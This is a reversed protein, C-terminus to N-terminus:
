WIIVVTGGPPKHGAIVINDHWSHTANAWGGSRLRIKATDTFTYTGPDLTESVSTWTRTTYDDTIWKKVVQSDSFDGLASYEMQVGATASSYDYYIDLDITVNTYAGSVLPLPDRLILLRNSSRFFSNKTLNDGSDSPSNAVGDLDITEDSGSSDYLTNAFDTSTTAAEFDESSLITGGAHASGATLACCTALAAFLPKISTKM